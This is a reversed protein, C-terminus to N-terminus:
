RRRTTASRRSGRFRCTGHLEETREVILYAAHPNNRIHRVKLRDANTRLRVRFDPDIIGGMQIVLPFGSSPMTLLFGGHKRSSAFELISARVDDTV